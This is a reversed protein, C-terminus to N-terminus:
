GAIRLIVFRRLFPLRCSVMFMCRELVTRSEFLDSINRISVDVLLKRRRERDWVLSYLCHELQSNKYM